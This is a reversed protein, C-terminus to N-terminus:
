ARVFLVSVLPSEYLLLFIVTICRLADGLTLANRGALPEMLFARLPLVGMYPNVVEFTVALFAAALLVAPRYKTWLYGIPRVSM